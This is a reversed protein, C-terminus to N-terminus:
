QNSVVSMAYICRPKSCSTCRIVCRVNQAVLNKIPIGQELDSVKKAKNVNSPLDKETPESGWVDSFTKYHDKDDDRLIPYPLWMAEKLPPEPCCQRDNCKRIQLAYVGEQNHKFEHYAKPM